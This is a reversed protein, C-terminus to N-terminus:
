PLICSLEDGTTALKCKAEYVQAARELLLGHLAEHTAHPTCKTLRDRLGPLLQRQHSAKSARAAMRSESLWMLLAEVCDTLSRQGVRSLILTYIFNQLLMIFYPRLQPGACIPSLMRWDRKLRPVLFARRMPIIAPRSANILFNNHM